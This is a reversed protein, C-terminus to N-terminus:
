QTVPVVTAPSLKFLDSTLAMRLEFNVINDVRRASTLVVREISPMNEYIAIQRALIEYSEAFGSMSATRDVIDITMDSFGINEMTNTELVAFFPTAAIHSGLLSRINTLQSYFQIFEKEAEEKPTIRELEAIRNEANETSSLIFPKYGFRLGAYIMLALGLIVASFILAKWPAAGSRSANSTVLTPFDNTM